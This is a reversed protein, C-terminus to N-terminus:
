SSEFRDDTSVRVSVVVLLQPPSTIPRVKSRNPSMLRMLPVLQSKLATGAATGAATSAATGAATSAATSAATGAATSATAATSASLQSKLVASQTFFSVSGSASINPGRRDMPGQKAPTRGMRRGDPRRATEPEGCPRRM